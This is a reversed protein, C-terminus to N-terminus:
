QIYECSSNFTYIDQWREVTDAGITFPISKNEGFHMRAEVDKIPANMLGNAQDSDVPFIRSNAYWLAQQPTNDEDLYNYRYTVIKPNTEKVPLRFVRGGVSFELLTPLTAEAKIDNKPAIQVVTEVYCGDFNSGWLSVFVFKGPKTRSFPQTIFGGSEDKGYRDIVTRGYVTEGLDVVDIVKSYPWKKIGWPLDQSFNLEDRKISEEVIQASAERPLLNILVLSLLYATFLLGNGILYQKLQSFNM